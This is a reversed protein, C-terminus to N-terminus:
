EVIISATFAHPTCFFPFTGAETFRFCRDEGNLVRFNGDAAGPTGSVADHLGANTMDFRVIDNVAITASDVDEGGFLFTGNTATVIVAVTGPCALEVVSSAPADVLGMSDPDNPDADIDPEADIPGQNDDGGDDGGCAALGLALAASLLARM